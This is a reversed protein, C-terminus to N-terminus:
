SSVYRKGINYKSVLQWDNKEKHPLVKIKSLPAQHEEIQSPDVLKVLGWESLLRAITNRRAVDDETMNFPKGDLAFLEKFHVIFYRQRKHLIHCSQYLTMKEVNEVVQQKKSAIGIRTLTERIKLFDDDGGIEVEILDNIDFNM